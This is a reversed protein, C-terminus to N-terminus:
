FWTFCTIQQKLFKFYLLLKFALTFDYSVLKSQKILLMIYMDELIVEKLTVNKM